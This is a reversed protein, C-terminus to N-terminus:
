EGKIYLPINKFGDFRLFEGNSAAKIASYLTQYQPYEVQLDFFSFVEKRECMANFAEQTYSDTALIGRVRTVYYEGKKISRNIDAYKKMTQRKSVMKGDDIWQQIQQAIEQRTM